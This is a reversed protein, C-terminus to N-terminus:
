AEGILSIFHPIFAYLRQEAIGSVGMELKSTLLNKRFHSPFDQPYQQEEQPSNHVLKEQVLTEGQITWHAHSL